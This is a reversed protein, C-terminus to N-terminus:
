SSVAFNKETLLPVILEMSCLDTRGLRGACEARGVAINWGGVPVSFGFGTIGEAIKGRIDRGAVVGARGAGTGIM